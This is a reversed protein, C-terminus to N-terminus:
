RIERMAVDYVYRYRANGPELETARKLELLAEQKRQQRVLALGLAHHLAAADPSLKLGERLTAEAETERGQMRRLDALNAWAPVFHADLRLAAQYETEAAVTEGREAFFGGLNTRHEPRDANFREAAVYEAAATGFAALGAADFADDALPALTRAAQMRVIRSPDGLLPMVARRQLPPLQDHVIISARRVLPSPDELGAEAALLASESPLYALREIASARAIASEDLNAAVQTLAMTAASDGRDAAAFAEAFGQFGPKPQPYRKRIEAMAWEAKRDTHCQNCANPTGLSLTRDPRPIRFSHDHRPDVVMYTETKMHCSACAAGPTGQEHFHHQPADYKAAAHCQACVANGP